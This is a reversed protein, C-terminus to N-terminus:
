PKEKDHKFFYYYILYGLLIWIGFKFLFSLAGVLIFCAIMIVAIVALSLVSIGFMFLVFASMLLAFLEFM